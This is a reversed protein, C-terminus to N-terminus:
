HFFDCLFDSIVDNMHFYASSVRMVNKYLHAGPGEIPGLGKYLKINKKSIELFISAIKQIQKVKIVQM